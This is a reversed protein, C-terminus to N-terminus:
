LADRERLEALADCWRCLAGWYRCRRTSRFTEWAYDPRAIPSTYSKGSAILFPLL